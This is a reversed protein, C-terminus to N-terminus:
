RGTNWYRDLRQQMATLATATVGELEAANTTLLYAVGADLYLSARSHNTTNSGDHGVFRNATSGGVGWGMGYVGGGGAPVANTTLYRATAQSLRPSRGQDALLLEQAIRAWSGLSMHATGAPSAGPPNDCAECVVWAGGVRRHGIPQDSMGAATTPGWGADTIGLPTFLRSEMLAEYTGGWAREIIAGALGFSNNSYRYQGRPGVPPQQLTHQAWATRAAPRNTSGSLGVNTNVLGGTHSLLESLTIPRHEPRMIGALDPLGSEVTRNWALVGAEVAMGALVGALAKGNSGLHWKDNVTVSPGGTVRRTGAVGIGVLGERSVIAAGLAPLGHATRISDVMATLTAVTGRVRQTVSRGESTATITVTGPQLVRVVGSTSVTALASNSSSYTVVRGTLAAGAANRVVPSLQVSARIAIDVSDAGLTLSAVPEAIVLLTASGSRGESTATILTAGPTITTITGSSNITAVTTNSSSWTITRGTLATGDAARTTAAAQVSQGAIPSSAPLSITVTAVPVATVTLTATATQGESTATITTSGPTLTTIAGSGSITAVATNSSSWTITRGTLETGAASRTTATAQVAQGAVTSSTSLVVSVSAVPQPTVTLTASGSQGESTATITTSGPTLTTISGGGSITAVATNSSSWTLTRGTLETGAASRTTATAQVSQGAVATASALSVSVSAVSAPPPPPAPPNTPADGGGGCAALGLCLSVTLHQAWRRPAGWGSRLTVTRRPSVFRSSTTM